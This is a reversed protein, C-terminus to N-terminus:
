RKVKTYSFISDELILFLWTCAHGKEMEDLQM